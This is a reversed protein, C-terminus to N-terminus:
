QNTQWVLACLPSSQFGNVVLVFLSWASFLAMLLYVLQLVTYVTCALAHM